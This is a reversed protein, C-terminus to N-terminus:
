LNQVNRKQCKESEYLNKYPSNQGDSKSFILSRQIGLPCCLGSAWWYLLLHEPPLALSSTPPPTLPSLWSHREPQPKLSSQHHPFDKDLEPKFPELRGSFGSPSRLPRRQGGQGGEVTPLHFFPGHYNLPAQPALSPARTAKRHKPLGWQHGDCWNRGPLGGPHGFGPTGVACKITCPLDSHWKEM